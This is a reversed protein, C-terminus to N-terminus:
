RVRMRMAGEDTGPGDFPPLALTLNEIEPLFRLVQAMAAAGHFERDFWVVVAYIGAFSRAVYRHEGDRQVVSLRAGRRM